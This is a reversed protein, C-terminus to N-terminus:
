QTQFPIKFPNVSKSKMISNYNQKKKEKQEKQIEEFDRKHFLFFIRFIQNSDKM